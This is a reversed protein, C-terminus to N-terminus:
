LAGFNALNNPCMTNVRDLLPIQVVYVAMPPFDIKAGSIHILL